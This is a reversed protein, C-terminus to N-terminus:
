HRRRRIAGYRLTALYNVFGGASLILVMAVAFATGSADMLSLVVSVPITLLIMGLVILMAARDTTM